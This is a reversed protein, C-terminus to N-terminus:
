SFLRIASLKAVGSGGKNPVITLGVHTISSLELKLDERQHIAGRPSFNFEQVRVEHFTRGEDFSVDVHMEQTRETEGEEVEYVLRSVRQPHDFEIVIREAVNPRASAWGGRGLILDDISHDSDESSYVVTANAALDIEEAGQLSGADQRVSLPRKRLSQTDPQIM